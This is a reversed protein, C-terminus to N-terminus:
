RPTHAFISSPSTVTVLNTDDDHLTGLIGIALRITRTFDDSNSTISPLHLM